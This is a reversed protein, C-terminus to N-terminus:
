ASARHRSRTRRRSAIKRRERESTGGWVGHDIGNALAHELCSVRVPCEACLSKAHEVGSGDFPFFEAPSLGRCRARAMWARTEDSGTPNM